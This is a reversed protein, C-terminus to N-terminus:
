IDRGKHYYVYTSDNNKKIITKSEKNNSNYTKLKKDNSCCPFVYM